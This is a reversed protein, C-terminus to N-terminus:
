DEHDTYMGLFRDLLGRNKQPREEEPSDEAKAIRNDPEPIKISLGEFAGSQAVMDDYAKRLALEWDGPKYSHVLVRGDAKQTVRLDPVLKGGGATYHISGKPSKDAQVSLGYDRSIVGRLKPPMSAKVDALTRVMNMLEDSPLSAPSGM